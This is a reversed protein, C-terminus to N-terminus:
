YRCRFLTQGRMLQVAHDANRIAGRPEHVMAQTVGHRIVRLQRIEGSYHFSVLAVDTSTASDSRRVCCVTFGHAQTTGARVILLERRNDTKDLAFATERQEWDLAGIALGQLSFNTLADIEGRM